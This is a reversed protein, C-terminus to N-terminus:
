KRRDRFYTWYVLLALLVLIAWTLVGMHGGGKKRLRGMRM